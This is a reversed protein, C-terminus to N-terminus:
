NNSSHLHSAVTYAKKKQGYPPRKDLIYNYIYKVTVPSHCLNSIVLMSLFSSFHKHCCSSTHLNFFYCCNILRLLLLLFHALIYELKEYIRKIRNSETLDMSRTDPSQKSTLSVPPTHATCESSKLSHDTSDRQGKWPWRLIRPTGTARGRSDYAGYLGKPEEVVIEPEKSGKQSKWLRRPSQSARQSKWM